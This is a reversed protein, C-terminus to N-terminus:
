HDLRGTFDVNQHSIAHLVATSGNSCLNVCVSAGGQLLKNYGNVVM